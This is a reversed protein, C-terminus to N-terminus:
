EWRGCHHEAHTYDIRQGTVPHKSMANYWHQHAPSASIGLHQIRRAVDQYCALCVPLHPPSQCVDAM